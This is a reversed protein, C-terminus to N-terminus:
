KIFIFIIGSVILLISSVKHTIILINMALKDFSLIAGSIFSTFLAFGGIISALIEMKTYEISRSIQFITIVLLVIGLISNLKHITFVANNLPRGLKSLWVGSLIIFLFIIGIIAFRYEFTDM